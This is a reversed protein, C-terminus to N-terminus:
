KVLKFVYCGYIKGGYVYDGSKWDMILYRENDIDKIIYQSALSTSLIYDRTWKIKDIRGNSYEVM